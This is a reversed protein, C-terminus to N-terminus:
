HSHVKCVYAIIGALAGGTQFISKGITSIFLSFVADPHDKKRAQLFCKKQM